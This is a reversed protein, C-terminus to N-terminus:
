GSFSVTAKQKYLLHFVLGIYNQDKISAETLEWAPDEYMTGLTLGGLTFAARLATPVSDAFPYIVDQEAWLAGARKTMVYVNLRYTIRDLDSGHPEVLGSPAEIVAFTTASPPTEPVRPYCNSSGIGSVGGVTTRLATVIASLSM